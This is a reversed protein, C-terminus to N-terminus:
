LILGRLPAWETFGPVIEVSEIGIITLFYHLLDIFSVALFLVGLSINKDAKKLALGVGFHGIFM